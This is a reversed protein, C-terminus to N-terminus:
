TRLWGPSTQGALHSSPSSVRAGDSSRTPFIQDVHEIGSECLLERRVEGLDDLRDLQDAAEVARGRRALDGVQEVLDRRQGTPPDGVHPRPVGGPTGREAHHAGTGVDLHLEGPQRETVLEGREHERQQLDAAVRRRGRGLQQIGHAAEGTLM